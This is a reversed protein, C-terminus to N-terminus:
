LRLIPPHLNRDGPWIELLLLWIGFRLGTFTLPLLHRVSLFHVEIDETGQNARQGEGDRTPPILGEQTVVGFAWSPDGLSDTFVPCTATAPERFLAGSGSVQCCLPTLPCIMGLTPGPLESACVLHQAPLFTFLGSLHWMSVM